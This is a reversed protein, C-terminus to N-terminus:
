NKAMSSIIARAARALSLNNADDFGALTNLERGSSYNRLKTLVATSRGKESILMNLYVPTALSRKRLEDMDRPLSPWEVLLDEGILEDGQGRISQANILCTIKEMYPVEKELDEHIAKLKLLFNEDFINEPNIAVFILEDRGFQDRFANYKLLAPDTRFFFGENSTDTRLKPLQSALSATLALVALAAKFRHRSVFHGLSEFWVESRDRLRSM